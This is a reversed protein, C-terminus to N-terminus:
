FTSPSLLPFRPLFSSAASAASPTSPPPTAPSNMPSQTRPKAQSGDTTSSREGATWLTLACALNSGRSQASCVTSACAAGEM